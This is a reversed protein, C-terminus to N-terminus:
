LTWNLAVRGLPNHKFNQNVNDEIRGILSLNKKFLWEGGIWYRRAFQNGDQDPRKYEDYQVGAALHLKEM